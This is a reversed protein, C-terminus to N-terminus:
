FLHHKIQPRRKCQSCPEAGYVLRWAGGCAWVFIYKRCLCGLGLRNQNVILPYGSERQPEPCESGHTSTSSLCDLCSLSARSQSLM